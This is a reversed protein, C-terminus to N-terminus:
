VHKRMASAQNDLAITMLASNETYVIAIPICDLDDLRFVNKLDWHLEKIWLLEKM